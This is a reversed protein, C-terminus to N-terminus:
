RLAVLRSFREATMFDARKENLAAEAEEDSGWQESQWIDDLTARQWLDELEFAGRAAALGIVLSGSLSVLDHLATLSFPDFKRVVESLMELSTAPQKCPMVGVSKLLPANLEKESFELLPDWASSQRAVLAEPASARYCILDSAGYDAIIGAVEDFQHSVKDIASNASRTLPMSKPDVIETQADWEKAIAEALPRTPVSLVAKGPTRVTKNDLSIQFGDQSESVRSNQWFRKVQWESM